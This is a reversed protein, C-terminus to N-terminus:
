ESESGTDMPERPPLSADLLRPGPRTTEIKRRREASRPTAWGNEQEVIRVVAFDTRASPSTANNDWIRALLNGSLRTTMQPAQGTIIM